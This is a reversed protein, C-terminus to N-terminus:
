RPALLFVFDELRTLVLAALCAVGVAVLVAVLDAPTGPALWSTVAAVLAGTLLLANRVAHVPAIASASAGFCACTVTMRRRLIVVVGATLVALLGSALVAGVVATWPLLLLLASGAEGAVLLGGVLGAQRTIGLQRLMDALGRRGAPTLKSVSSWALVLALLVRLTLAVTAM